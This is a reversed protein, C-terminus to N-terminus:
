NQKKWNGSIALYKVILIRYVCIGLMSSIWLVAIFIDTFSISDTLLLFDVLIGIEKMGRIFKSVLFSYAFCIKRRRISGRFTGHLFRLPSVRPLFVYVHLHRFLSLFLLIQLSCWTQTSRKVIKRRGVPAVRDTTPPGPTLSPFFYSPLRHRYLLSSSTSYLSALVFPQALNVM